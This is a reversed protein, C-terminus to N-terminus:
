LSPRNYAMQQLTQIAARGILSDPFSKLLLPNKEIEPNGLVSIFGSAIYDIQLQKESTLSQQDIGLKRFWRSILAEKLLSRLLPSNNRAFLHVKKLRDSLQLQEWNSSLNQPASLLTDIFAMSAEDSLVKSFAQSAVEYLNAYHYYLSNRNIGAEKALMQMTIGSFDKQEILAWFATETKYVASAEPENTKPRSMPQAGEQYNSLIDYYASNNYIM